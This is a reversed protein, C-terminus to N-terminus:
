INETGHPAGFGCLHRPEGILAPTFGHNGVPSRKLDTEINWRFDSVVDVIDVRGRKDDIEVRELSVNCPHRIAGFGHVYTQSGMRLRVLRSINCEVLDLM